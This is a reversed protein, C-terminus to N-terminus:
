NRQSREEALCNFWLQNLRRSQELTLARMLQEISRAQINGDRKLSTIQNETLQARAALDKQKIDPYEALLFRFAKALCLNEKKDSNATTM